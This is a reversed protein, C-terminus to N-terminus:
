AQHLDFNDYRVDTGPVTTFVDFGAAQFPGIGAADTATVIEQGNVRMILRTQSGTSDCEAHIRLTNSTGAFAPNPAAGAVDKLYFRPKLEPATEDFRLVGASGDPKVVFAYGRDPEGVGSSWCGVGYYAYARKGLPPLAALTADTDLVLHHVAGFRTPIIQHYNISPQKVLIRYAGAACGVSAGGNHDVAWRCDGSFDDHIPLDKKLVTSTAASGSGCAAALIGLVLLAALVVSARSGM